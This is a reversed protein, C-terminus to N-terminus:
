QCMHYKENIKQLKQKRLEKTEIFYEYFGFDFSKNYDKKLTFMTNDVNVSDTHVENRYFDIIFNIEYIKGKQFKITPYVRSLDQICYIQEGIKM